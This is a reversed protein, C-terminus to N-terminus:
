PRNGWVILLSMYPVRGGDWDALPLCWADAGAAHGARVVLTAGTLADCARLRAALDDLRRSVKYLVLTDVEALWVDLRDLADEGTALLLRQDEILLPAVADAAAATMAAVGPCVRVPVDPPMAALVHQFSSYLLPDGETILVVDQGARLGALVRRGAEERAVEREEHVPSMPLHLPLETAGPPIHAAAVDRAISHGDADVVYAVIQATAIIRAARFTMLEPDGPGVGVGHLIGPTMM